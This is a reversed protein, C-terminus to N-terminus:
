LVDPGVITDWLIKDPNEWDSAEGSAVYIPISMKVEYGACGDVGYWYLHITNVKEQDIHCAYPDNPYDGKGTNENTRFMTMFEREPETAERGNDDTCSYLVPVSMLLMLGYVLIKKM